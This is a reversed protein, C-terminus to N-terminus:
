SAPGLTHDLHSYLAECVAVPNNRADAKLLGKRILVDVETERLQIMLCRLGQRRRERRLRMREAAASRTVPETTPPTMILQTDPTM